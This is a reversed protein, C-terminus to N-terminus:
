RSLPRSEETQCLSLGWAPSSPSVPAVTRQCCLQAGKPLLARMDTPELCGRIDGCCGSPPCSHGSIGLVRSSGKSQTKGHGEVAM